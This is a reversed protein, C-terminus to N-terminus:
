GPSARVFSAGIGRYRAYREDLLRDRKRSTLDNLASGIAERLMTAAANPDSKAGHEPEPVVADAIGAAVVDSATLKLREAVEPARSADRYLIAAAGEPAIVSYIAREQILVRDAVALALAGGSGGEGTIASVIPTPLDSMLAMSEAIEGALGREESEIGPYAGPTDILTVVPLGFRAAMRMIRQAKRYGEPLPRGGRREADEAGHGREIAVLAVSRGDISGLGAVIAADDGSERDGHLEIFRDCFRSIYDISTPRDPDRAALVSEWATGGTIIREHPRTQTLPQQADHRALLELSSGIFGRLATRDVIGDIMGHALLFEATHSGPPLPKGLFQEAVRPGAFGILSKPEAVIIDGLNAFSAFVGGTTPHTLVSIYPVGARHLRQIAAATKAMQLLSLMGEQMRAGGSAVVTVLPRREKQAIETARVLKEGVVVGMSGGLFGFDLVALMVRQGRITARGTVIADSEGLEAQLARLRERYPQDDAFGIPDTSTLSAESEAFSGADVLSAIRARAPISAYAGCEDCVRFRAFKPRGAMPARCAACAVNPDLEAELTPQKPNPRHLVKM